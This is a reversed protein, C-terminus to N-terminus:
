ETDDVTDHEGRGTVHRPGMEVLEGVGHADPPHGRLLRGMIYHSRQLRERDLVGADLQEATL